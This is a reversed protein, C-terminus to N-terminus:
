PVPPLGGHGADGELRRMFSALFNEQWKQEMGPLWYRYPEKRTGLGDQLVWGAQVARDLWRWLTLKAPAAGGEPWLRLLERRTLRGAAGALLGQLVPWGREFDPEASPGLGLYDTGDAALEIVWSGPTADHRSYARLRRRRDKADRRSLRQMEIIIDVYGSLAGSGRAAQGPVLSGKRPHHLVLVAVGRTTLRQLPLLTNLMEGADNESRLPSLNALPDIVLLDLGHRDHIRGVQDLLALWEEPRPKGLFPRCFWCLHDDFALVQGREHWKAPSEESVVVAKDAALPLGALAGGTKMRALLVSVLTSKGSKWQSTLLTVQGPALYGQWLWTRGAPDAGELDRHSLPAYPGSLTSVSDGSTDM